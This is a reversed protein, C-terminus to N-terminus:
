ENTSDQTLPPQDDQIPPTEEIILEISFGTPIDAFTPARGIAFGVAVHANMSVGFHLFTEPQIPHM